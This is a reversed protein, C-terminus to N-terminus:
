VSLSTPCRALGRKCFGGGGGGGSRQACGGAAVDCHNIIGRLEGKRCVKKITIYEKGAAVATYKRRRSYM